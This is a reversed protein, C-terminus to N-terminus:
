RRLYQGKNQLMAEITLGNLPTKIVQPILRNVSNYNVPFSLRVGAM